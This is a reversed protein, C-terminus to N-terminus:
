NISRLSYSPSYITNGWCQLQSFRFQLELDQIRLGLVELRDCSAIDDIGAEPSSQKADLPEPSETEESTEISSPSSLHDHILSLLLTETVPDPSQDHNTDNGATPTM